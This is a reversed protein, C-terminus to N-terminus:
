VELALHAHWPCRDTLKEHLLFDSARRFPSASAGPHFAKLLILNPVATSIGPPSRTRWARWCGARGIQPGLVPPLWDVDSGRGFQMTPQRLLMAMMWKGIIRTIRSM